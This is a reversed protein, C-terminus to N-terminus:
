RTSCRSGVGYNLSCFNAIELPSGPEQSGFQNCPPLRAGGPRTRSLIAVFKGARPVAPIGCKSATNVM